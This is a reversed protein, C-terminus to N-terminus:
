MSNSKGQIEIKKIKIHFPKKQKTNRSTEYRIKLIDINYKSM